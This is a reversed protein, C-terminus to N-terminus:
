FPGFEFRNCGLVSTFACILSRFYMRCRWSHTCLGKLSVFYGKERNRVACAFMYYMHKSWCILYDIVIFFWNRYNMADHLVRVLILGVLRSNPFANFKSQPIKTELSFYFARGNSRLAKADRINTNWFRRILIWQVSMVFFLLECLNNTTKSSINVSWCEGCLTM